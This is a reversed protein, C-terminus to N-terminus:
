GVWISFLSNVLSSTAMSIICISGCMRFPSQFNERLIWCASLLQHPREEIHDKDNDCWIQEDVFHFHEDYFNQKHEGFRDLDVQVLRVQGDFCFFKYDKPPKGSDDALYKEVIIRPTMDKYVYEFRATMIIQGCGVRVGSESVIL